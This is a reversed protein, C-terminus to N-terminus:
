YSLKISHVISFRYEYSIFFVPRIKLFASILQSTLEYILFYCTKCKIGNIQAQWIADSIGWLAALIFYVVPQNPDPQWFLFTVMLALNVVAGFVFIPVRGLKKIAAGSTISAIADAIGYCIM